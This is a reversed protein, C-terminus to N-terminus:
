PGGAKTRIQTQRLRLTLRCVGELLAIHVKGMFDPWKRPSDLTDRDVSIGTKFFDVATNHQEVLSLCRSDRPGNISQDAFAMHANDVMGLINNTQVISITFDFEYIDVVIV